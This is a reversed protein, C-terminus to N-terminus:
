MHGVCVRVLGCVVVLTSQAPGVYQHVAFLDLKGHTAACYADIWGPPPARKPLSPGATRVAMGHKRALAQAEVLDEGLQSASNHLACAALNAIDVEPM